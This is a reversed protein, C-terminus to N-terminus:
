YSITAIQRVDATLNKQDIYGIGNINESIWQIVLQDDTFKMPRLMRGSFIKTAWFRNLQTMTRGVVLDFFQQSVENEGPQYSLIIPSNDGFRSLRVNYINKLDLVSLDETPNKVNVIIAIGAASTPSAASVWMFLTLFLFLKRM